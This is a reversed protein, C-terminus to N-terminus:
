QRVGRNRQMEQEIIDINKQMEDNIAKAKAAEAKASALEANARSQEALQQALIMKEQRVADRAATLKTRAERLEASAHDAIRARDANTIAMEAAALEQAPPAPPAACAILSFLVAIATTLRLLVGDTRVITSRQIM